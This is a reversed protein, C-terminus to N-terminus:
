ISNASVNINRFAVNKTQGANSDSHSILYDFQANLVDWVGRKDKNHPEAAITPM